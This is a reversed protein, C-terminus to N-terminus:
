AWVPLPSLALALRAVALSPWGPADIAHAAADGLAWLSPPDRAPPPRAHPDYAIALALFGARLAAARARLRRAWRRLTDEAVGYAQALRHWPTRHEDHDRLVQERVATPFPMYPTVFPPYLTITVVPCDARPCRVRYIPILTPHATDDALRRWFHGHPITPGTCGPCPPAPPPTHAYAALYQETTLPGSLLVWCMKQPARVGNVVCRGRVVVIGDARAQAAAVSRPHRVLSHKCAPCPANVSVTHTVGLM